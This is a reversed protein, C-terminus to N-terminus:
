SLPPGDKAGHKALGEDDDGIGVKSHRRGRDLLCEELKEVGHGMQAVTEEDVTVQEIEPKGVGPHDRPAPEVNGRSQGPKASLHRDYHDPSVM